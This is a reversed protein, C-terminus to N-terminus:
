PASGFIAHRVRDGARIGLRAVTGARLELVGSVPLPTGVTEHSFPTTDEVIHVIRGNPAIFIMDLPIVTNAMWMWAESPPQYRFLMGEDRGLRQRLMLGCSKEAETRALEVSFPQPGAATEIVLTSRPLEPQPPKACAALAAPATLGTAIALGTAAALALGYGFAWLGGSRGLRPDDM